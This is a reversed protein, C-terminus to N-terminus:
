NLYIEKAKIRQILGINVTENLMVNRFRNGVLVNEVQMVRDSGVWFLHLADGEVFCFEDFPCEHANFALVNQQVFVPNEVNAFVISVFQSDFRLGM